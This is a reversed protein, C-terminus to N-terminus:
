KVSLSLLIMDAGECFVSCCSSFYPFFNLAASGSSRGMQLSLNVFFSFTYSISLCFILCLALSLSASPSSVSPLRTLSIWLSLSSSVSLCISPSVCVSLSLFICLSLSLWDTLSLPLFLFCFHLSCWTHVPMKEGGVSRSMDRTKIKESRWLFTVLAYIVFLLALPLLSM